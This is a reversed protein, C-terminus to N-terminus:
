QKLKLAYARQIKGENTLKQLTKLVADFNAQNTQGPKFSVLMDGEREILQQIVSQLTVPLAAMLVKNADKQTEEPDLHNPLVQALKNITKQQKDAIAILKNIAQKTKDDM